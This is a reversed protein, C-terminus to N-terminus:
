SLQYLMVKVRHPDDTRTRYRRGSRFVGPELIKAGAEDASTSCDRANGPAIAASRTMGSMMM